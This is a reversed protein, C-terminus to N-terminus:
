IMPKIVIILILRSTLVGSVSLFDTISSVIKSTIWYMPITHLEIPNPNM